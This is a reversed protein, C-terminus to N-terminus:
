KKANFLVLFELKTFSSFGYRSSSLPGSRQTPDLRSLVRDIVPFSSDCCLIM